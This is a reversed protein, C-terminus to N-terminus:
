RYFNIGIITYQNDTNRYAEFTSFEEYYIFYFGDTELKLWDKDTIVTKLKEYEISGQSYTKVLSLVKNM